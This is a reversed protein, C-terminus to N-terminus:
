GKLNPVNEAIVQGAVFLDYPRKVGGRLRSVVKPIEIIKGKFERKSKADFHSFEYVERFSEEDDDDDDDDYEDDDDDDDFNDDAM